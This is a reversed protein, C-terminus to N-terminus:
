PEAWIICRYSGSAIETLSSGMLVSQREKEAKGKGGFYPVLRNKHTIGGTGFLIAREVNAGGTQKRVAV